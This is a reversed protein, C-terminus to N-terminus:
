KLVKKYKKPNEITEASLIIESYDGLHSYADGYAEWTTEDVVTNLGRAGTQRKQALNALADIYDDGLTLKVGLEQFLKKQVKVASEDSEVIIRKIDDVDLDNLKVISVRGMFEDPMKAKDIFDQTTAKRSTTSKNIDAGFGISNAEKLDKYVDTFAGGLIVIMNKTDIKVSESKSKVSECADYSAGEIFPLLVNLVGRGSVDDKKSSGKKDIEDFFVIANEAREKNKGCQVYLDWLVEEIDKGVYGPVTLQTSDVKIFPRDLYKAILQMMKTKGTGTAGTILLGRNKSTPNHEKRAIETIVRRTPEDQAILTSTVKKFLDNIDIYNQPKSVSAPKIIKKSVDLEKKEEEGKLTVFSEGKESAEIQLDLSDLLGDIDEKQLIVVDRLEKLEELSYVGDMINLLIDAIDARIEKSHIASEAVDEFDEEEEEDDDYEVVTRDDIPSEHEKLSHSIDKIVNSMNDRLTDLNIPICFLADEKTRSVYYIYKSCHDSYDSIAQRVSDTQMMDPLDDIDILNGYARSVESMLLVRDVMSLYEKGNRDVFIKSDPDVEGIEPHSVFFLFKDDGLFLRNMITVVCRKSM